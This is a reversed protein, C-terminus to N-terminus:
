AKNDRGVLRYQIFMLALVIIFLLVSAATATGVSELVRQYIYTVLTITATGPGGQTMVWVQDFVKFSNIMLMTSVFFTTPKLMPLTLNWFAQWRSAGDMYIAEYLEDPIKQLGGVFIIMYLGFDKWISLLIVTPMALNKDFLWMQTPLGLMEIISNVAGFTPEFMLKWVIGAIAMPIVVPIFQMTRLVSIGKLERSAVIAVALALVISGFMNCITFYFTNLLTKRFVLDEFLLYKYNSLGVFQKDSFFDWKLFSYSVAQLMPYFIFLGIIALAPFVFLWGLFTQNNQLKRIIDNM